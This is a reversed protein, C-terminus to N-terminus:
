SVRESTFVRGKGSSRRVWRRVKDSFSAVLSMDDVGEGVKERKLESDDVDEM